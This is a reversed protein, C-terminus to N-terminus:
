GASRAFIVSDLGHRLEDDQHYALAPLHEPDKSRRYRSEGPRFQSPARRESVRQDRRRACTSEARRLRNLM